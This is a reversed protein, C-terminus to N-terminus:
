AWKTRRSGELELISLGLCGKQSGGLVSFDKSNLRGNLFGLNQKLLEYLWKLGWNGNITGDEKWKIGYIVGSRKPIGM